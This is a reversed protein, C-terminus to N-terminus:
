NNQNKVIYKLNKIKFYQCCIKIRVSFCQKINIIILFVSLVNWLEEIKCTGVSSMNLRKYCKYIMFLFIYFMLSCNSFDISNYSTVFRKLEIRDVFCLTELKIYINTNMHTKWYKNCCGLSAKLTFAFYTAHYILYYHVAISTM